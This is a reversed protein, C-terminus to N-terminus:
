IASSSASWQQGTERWALFYVELPKLLAYEILLMVVVQLATWAIVGRLSFMQFSREIQYGVGSGLGLMEVIVVTKWSLAVSQRLAAFAFPLLQPWRVQRLRELTTAGFAAAMEDLDPQHARIGQDLTLTIMPGVLATIALLAAWETLGLMMIAMIAWAAAPITVGVVIFPVAYVRTRPTAALAALAGGFLLSGITGYAIRQVTLLIEKYTAAHALMQRQENASLLFIVLAAAPVITLVLQRIRARQVRSSLRYGIM